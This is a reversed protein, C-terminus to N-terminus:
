QIAESQLELMLRIGFRVGEKFDHRSEFANLAMLSNWVEDSFDPGLVAAAEEWAEFACKRVERHEPAIPTKDLYMERYIEDLISM